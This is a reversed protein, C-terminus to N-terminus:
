PDEIAHIAGCFEDPRRSFLLKKGVLVELVFGLTALGALTLPRATRGPGSSRAFPHFGDSVAGRAPLFRGHGELRSLPARDEALFAELGPLECPGAADLTKQGLTM